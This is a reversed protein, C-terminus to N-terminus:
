EEVEGNAREISFRPTEACGCTLEWHDAADASIKLEGGCDPCIPTRDPGDGDASEFQISRLTATGTGVPAASATDDTSRLLQTLKM